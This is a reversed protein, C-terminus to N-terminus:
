CSMDGNEEEATTALMDAIEAFEHMTKDFYPISPLDPKSNMADSTLVNCTSVLLVCVPNGSTKSMTGHLQNSLRKTRYSSWVYRGDSNGGRSLGLSHDEAL